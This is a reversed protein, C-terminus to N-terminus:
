GGAPRSGGGAKRGSHLIVQPSVLELWYDGRAPVGRREVRWGAAALQRLYRNVQRVSVGLAAALGASTQRGRAVLILLRGVLAAAPEATGRYRPM